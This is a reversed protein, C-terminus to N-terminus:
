TRSREAAAHDNHHSRSQDSSTSSAQHSNRSSAEGSNQEQSFDSWNDDSDELEGLYALFDDSPEAIKEALALSAFGVVLWTLARVKALARVKITSERRSETNAASLVTLQM